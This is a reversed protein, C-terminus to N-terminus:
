FARAIGRGGHRMQEMKRRDLASHPDFATGHVAQFHAPSNGRRKPAPAMDHRVRSQLWVRKTAATHPERTAIRSPAARFAVASGRKMAPINAVEVDERAAKSMTKGSSDRTGTVSEVLEVPTRIYFSIQHALDGSPLWFPQSLRDDMLWWPYRSNVDDRYVVATRTAIAEENSRTRYRFQYTVVQHEINGATLRESLRAAYAASPDSEGRTDVRVARVTSWTESSHFVGCGAFAFCAALSLCTSKQM